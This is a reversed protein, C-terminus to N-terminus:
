YKFTYFCFFPSFERRGRWDESHQPFCALKQTFAASTGEVKHAPRAGGARHTCGGGGGGVAQFVGCFAEFAPQVRAKRGALPETRGGGRELMRACSDDVFVLRVSKSRAKV